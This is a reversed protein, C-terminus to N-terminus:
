ADFVALVRTEISNRAPADPPCHPHDFAIHPVMQYTPGRSPDFGSFVLTEGPQMESFYYWRHRPNRRFLSLDVSAGRNEPGADFQGCGVVLDQAEVSSADCLALPTDQPPPTIQQWVNFCRWSRPRSAILPPTGRTVGLAALTPADFVAQRTPAFGPAFDTHVHRAPAAVKSHHSLVSRNSFRVNVAWPLVQSAGTLRQVLQRVAPIWHRGVQAADLYDLPPTHLRDLVFGQAALSLRGALPRADTIEVPVPLQAIGTWDTDFVFPVRLEPNAVYNILAQM